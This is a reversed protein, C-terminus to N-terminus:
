QTIVSKSIKPDTLLFKVIWLRKPDGQIVFKVLPKPSFCFNGKCSLEKPQYANDGQSSHQKQCFSASFCRFMTENTFAEKMYMFM